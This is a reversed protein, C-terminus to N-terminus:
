IAGYVWNSLEPPIEPMNAADHKFYVYEQGHRVTANMADAQWDYRTAEEVAFSYTFEDDENLGTAYVNHSNLKMYVIYRAM